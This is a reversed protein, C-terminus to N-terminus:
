EHKHCPKCRVRLSTSARSFPALQHKLSSLHAHLAEDHQAADAELEDLRCRRLAPPLCHKFTACVIHWKHGQGIGLPHPDVDELYIQLPWPLAAFEASDIGYDALYVAAARQWLPQKTRDYHALIAVGCM